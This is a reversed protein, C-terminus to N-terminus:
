DSICRRRSPAARPEQEFTAMCISFPGVKSNRGLSPTRAPPLSVSGLDRGFAKIRGRFVGLEDVDGIVVHELTLLDDLGFRQGPSVIVHSGSGSHVLVRYDFAIPTELYPDTFGTLTDRLSKKITENEADDSISDPDVWVGLEHHINLVFLAKGHEAEQKWVSWERLHRSMLSKTLDRHSAAMAEIADATTESGNRTSEYQSYRDWAAKVRENRETDGEKGRINDVLKEFMTRLVPGFKGPEAFEEVPMRIDNLSLHPNEFLRWDVLAAVFPHKRRKSLVLVTPGLYAVSLRGIGKEGQRKRIPLGDRDAEAVASDSVKSETGVVLWRDVFEERSMGHGDDVLGAVPVDGDFIHLTVNRAYADYANKWLESIATPCDAIQGRGLHDITRARTQFPVVQM